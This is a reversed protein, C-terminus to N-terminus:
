RQAAGDPQEGQEGAAIGGLIKLDEDQAVLEGHEAALSWPGLEFGGVPGQEGGDAADQGSGAPGAEQDLWLGQQAPVAAEDRAGPGVGTTARPSGREVLVELLQDDAEGLLIGTPAVLADLALQQAHPHPDRCRRDAEDQATMSKM